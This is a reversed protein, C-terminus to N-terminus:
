LDTAQQTRIQGPVRQLDRVSPQRPQPRLCPGVDFVDIRSLPIGIVIRGVAFWKAAWQLEAILQGRRGCTAIRATSTVGRGFVRSMMPVVCHVCPLAFNGRGM